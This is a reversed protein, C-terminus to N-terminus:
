AVEPAAENQEMADQAIPDGGPSLPQKSKNVLDGSMNAPLNGQQLAAAQAQQLMQQQLYMNHIEVHQIFQQQIVPDLSMFSPEKMRNMHIQLHITHNEYPLVATGEGKGNEMMENEWNARKVDAEFDSDFGKVGIMELFKQKNVPNNILDGLMGTGALDMLQQQQAAKSRPISSGAEIRVSCNDRLDSGIFNAIDIDTIDKNMAKIKNIFEPRPERYKQAILKLKKTEGNEIFKEWRYIQPSLVSISQDQLLQLASYTNVGTPRLGQLVENTRALQYLERVKTEREQFVQPPLQVGPIIEPKAGNAGVPRYELQLGPAGSWTGTQIGCGTPILKQPSVMTKRNLIILSDIANISRQPEVLDDVLSKGWFRGPVIEWKYISYPHYSGPTGDYYPSHNRYLLKNNCSVIMQGKPWSKTPRIYLTKLLAVNKLSTSLVTTGGYPGTGKGSLTKLRQSMEVMTNINNDPKVFAGKGTFGEGEKSFNEKIWDLREVSIEMIWSIDQDNVANPDVVMRFPDIITVASDGLPIEDFMPSGDFPDIMPEEQTYEQIQGYENLTQQIIQQTKPVRVVKSYSTDWYDKRFVTGCTVAWMAAEMLKGEMADDEWKVDQIIAGLRAAGIDETNNSNPSVTANPKNRTLLSAMSSVIPQIYNTVPRPIYDAGRNVPIIEFQKTTTNYYIHQDGLLFHINQMWQYAMREQYYPAMKSAEEINQQIADLDEGDMKELDLDFVAM